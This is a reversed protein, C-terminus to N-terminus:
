LIDIFGCFPQAMRATVGPMEDEDQQDQMREVSSASSSSSPAAGAPSKSIDLLLIMLLLFQTSCSVSFLHWLASGDGQWGGGIQGKGMGM